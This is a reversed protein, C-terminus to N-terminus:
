IFSKFKIKIKEATIEMLFYTPKGNNYYDGGISGPNLLLMNDSFTEESQHTHGFVVVDAKLENGKAIIRQYTNKVGYTHGHTIFIRKGEIELCKEIGYDANWDNNGRVYEFHLNGYIEQIKLIDAVCDGLHIVMQINENNEIANKMNRLNGHSDSFLLIRM